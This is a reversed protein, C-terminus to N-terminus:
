CFIDFILRSLWRETLSYLICGVHGSKAFVQTGGKRSLRPRSTRWVLLIITNFSAKTQWQWCVPSLWVRAVLLMAVSPGLGRNNTISLLTLTPKTWFHATKMVWKNGSKFWVRSPYRKTEQGISCPISRPYSEGGIAMWFRWLLSSVVDPFLREVAQRQLLFLCDASVNTVSVIAMGLPMIILTLISLQPLGDDIGYNSEAAEWNVLRWLISAIPYNLGFLYKGEISSTRLLLNHMNISLRELTRHVSYQVVTFPTVRLQRAHASGRGLTGAM